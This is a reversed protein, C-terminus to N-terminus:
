ENKLYDRNNLYEILCGNSGLRIESMACNSFKLRNIAMNPGMGIQNGLFTKLFWGHSVLICREGGQKTILNFGEKAREALDTLSEGNPPRANETCELLLKSIDDKKKGFWDGNNIERFLPSYVIPLGKLKGIKEALVRCRYADSSYLKDISELELHKLLKDIQIYGRADLDGEVNHQVIGEINAKTVPHRIM